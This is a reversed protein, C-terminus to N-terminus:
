PSADNNHMCLVYELKYLWGVLITSGLLSWPGISSDLFVPIGTPTIGPGVVACLFFCPLYLKEM